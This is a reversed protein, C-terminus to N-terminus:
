AASILSLLVGGIVLGAVAIRGLSPWCVGEDNAHDALALLVLKRAPTGDYTNWVASMIAISM